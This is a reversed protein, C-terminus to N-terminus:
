ATGGDSRAELGQRALERIRDDTIPLERVTRATWRDGLAELARPVCRFGKIFAEVLEAEIDARMADRVMKYLETQRVDFDDDEPRNM